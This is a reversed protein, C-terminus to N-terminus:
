PGPLSNARPRNPPSGESTINPDTDAVIQVKARVEPDKRVPIMAVVARDRVSWDPDDLDALLEARVKAAVDPNARMLADPSGFVIGVRTM